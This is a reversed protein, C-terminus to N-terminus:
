GKLYVCNNVLNALGPDLVADTDMGVEAKLEESSVTVASFYSPSLALIPRDEITSSKTFLLLFPLSGSAQGRSVKHAHPAPGTLPV